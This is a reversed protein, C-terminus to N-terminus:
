SWAWGPFETRFLSLYRVWSEDGTRAPPVITVPLEDYGWSFSALRRIPEARSRLPVTTLFTDARWRLTRAGNLNRCPADYISPPYGVAVFPMGTGDWVPALDIETATEARGDAWTRDTRVVQVWGLLRRYGTGEYAVSASMGPYGVAAVAEFPLGPLVDFGAGVGDAIREVRVVVVGDCGHHRFPIRM